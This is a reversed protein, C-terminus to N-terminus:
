CSVKYSSRGLHLGELVRQGLDLLSRCLFLGGAFFVLGPDPLDLLLELVGHLFALGQLAVIRVLLGFKSLGALACLLGPNFGM